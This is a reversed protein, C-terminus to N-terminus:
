GPSGDRASLSTYWLALECAGSLLTVTGLPDLLCTYHSNQFKAKKKKFMSHTAGLTPSPLIPFKFEFTMSFIDLVFPHTCKKLVGAFSKNCSSGKPYGKSQESAASNKMNKKKKKM